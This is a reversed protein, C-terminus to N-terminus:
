DVKTTRLLNVETLFTTLGFFDQIQMKTLLQALMLYIEQPTHDGMLSSALEAKKDITVEEEKETTWKILGWLLRHPRKVTRKETTTLNRAGLMLIALVDGIPRCDKAINLAEEAVRNGDLHVKPLTSIAESALILTAVSPPAMTYTKEGVTLTIDKQLVAEATKQEITPTENTM